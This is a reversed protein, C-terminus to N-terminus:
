AQEKLVPAFGRDAAWQDANALFEEVSSATEEDFYKEARAVRLIDKWSTLAHLHIGMDRMNQQSSEHGYHFIVFLHEIRAGAVRLADVFVKVSVGFNQVDEILAVHPNEGEMFGEIQSMRGFGKPKKRIYLMPKNLREAIFAAYPIGATEGGAVYDVDLKKLIQAGFDMLQSRAEPFSILRRCDVYVPGRKGSTYTFPEDINVMVAKTELLIRAAAAAIDQTM